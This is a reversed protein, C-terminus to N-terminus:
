LLSQASHYSSSILQASLFPAIYNAHSHLQTISFVGRPVHCVFVCACMCVCMCMCVCLCVCVGTSVYVCISVCSSCCTVALVYVCTCCWVCIACRFFVIRLWTQCSGVCNCLWTCLGWVCVCMVHWLAGLCVYLVCMCSWWEDCAVLSWICWICACRVDVWGCMRVRIWVPM